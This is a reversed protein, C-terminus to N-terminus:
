GRKVQCRVMKDLLMSSMNDQYMKSARVCYGRAELFYGTWLLQPIVDDTAVLETETSIKNNLKQKCSNYYMGGKGMSITGGTHIRM